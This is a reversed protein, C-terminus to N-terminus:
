FIHDHFCLDVCASSRSEYYCDNSQALHHKWVLKMLPLWSPCSSECPSLPLRFALLPINNFHQLFFINTNQDTGATRSNNINLVTDKYKLKWVNREILLLIFEDFFTGQWKHFDLYKLSYKIYHVNFYILYLLCM